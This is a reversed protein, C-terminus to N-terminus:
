ADFGQGHADSVLPPEVVNAPEPAVTPVVFLRVLYAGLTVTTLLLGTPVDMEGLHVPPDRFLFAVFLAVTQMFSRVQDCVSQSFSSHHNAIKGLPLHDHLFLLLLGGFLAGPPADAVAHHIIIPSEVAKHLHQGVLTQAKPFFERYYAFAIGGLRTM